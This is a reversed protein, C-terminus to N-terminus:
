PITCKSPLRANAEGCARWGAKGEAPPRLALVGEIIGYDRFASASLFIALLFLTDNAFLPTAGRIHVVTDEDARGSVRAHGVEFEEVTGSSGLGSGLIAGVIAEGATAAATQVV